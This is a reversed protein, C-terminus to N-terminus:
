LDLMRIEKGVDAAMIACRIMGANNADTKM